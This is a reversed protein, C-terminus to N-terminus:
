DIGRETERIQEELVMIDDQLMLYTREDKVGELIIKLRQLEKRLETM